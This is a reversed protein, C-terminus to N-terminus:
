LPLDSHRGDSFESPPPLCLHATASHRVVFRSGRESLSHCRCWAASHKEIWGQLKVFRGRYRGRGFTADRQSHGKATRRQSFYPDRWKQQNERPVSGTKGGFLSGHTSPGTKALPFLLNRHPRTCGHTRGRHAACMHGRAKIFDASQIGIVEVRVFRKARFPQGLGRNSRNTM